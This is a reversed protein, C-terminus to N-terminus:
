PFVLAAAAEGSAALTASRTVLAAAVHVASAVLTTGLMPAVVARSFATSTGRVAWAIATVVGAALIAGVAFTNREAVLAALRTPDDWSEEAVRGLSRSAVACTATLASLWAATGISVVAIPPREAATALLALSGALVMGVISPAVGTPLVVRAGGLLLAAAPLSLFIGASRQAFRARGVDPMAAYTDLLAVAVLVGVSLAAGLWRAELALDAARVHEPITEAHVLSVLSGTLWPLMALVLSGWAPARRLAPGLAAVSVIAVAVGLRMGTDEIHTRVLTPGLIQGDLPFFLPISSLGLALGGIGFSVSARNTSAM